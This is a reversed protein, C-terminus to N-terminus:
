QDQKPKAFRRLFNMYEIAEATIMRLQDMDGKAVQKLMVDTDNCSSDLKKVDTLHKRIADFVSQHGPNKYGGEKREIAFALAGIFGNERIQTAVQKAVAQGGHSGGKITNAANFANQARKQAYNLIAM